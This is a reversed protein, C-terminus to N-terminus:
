VIVEGYRTKEVVNATTAAGSRQLHFIRERRFGGLSSFATVVGILFHFPTPMFPLSITAITPITADNPPKARITVRAITAIQRSLRTKPFNSEATPCASTCQLSSVEEDSQFWSAFSQPKLRM